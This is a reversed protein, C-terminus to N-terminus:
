NNVCSNTYRLKGKIKFHHFQQMDKFQEISFTFDSYVNELGKVVESIEFSKFRKDLILLAEQRVEEDQRELDGKIAKLNVSFIIECDVIRLTGIVESFDGINFFFIANKTDDLLVERYEKNNVYFEPVTGGERENKYVRGYGDIKDAGWELLLRDYLHIQIRKVTTDVGVTDTKLFNSM